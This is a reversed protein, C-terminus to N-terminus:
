KIKRFAIQYGGHIIILIDKNEEYLNNILNTVDSSSAYDDMWIIGNIEICKLANNFDKCIDDLLHSGDIYIFTYTNSNNNFFDSSYDFHTHIKQYQKSLSINSTFRNKTNDSVPTTTDSTDFPDVCTLSSGDTDLFEDSFYCSSAGEHSGIELIKNVCQNDIYYHALKKLESNDFWNNTFTYM